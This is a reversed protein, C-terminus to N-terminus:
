WFAIRAELGVITESGRTEVTMGFRDNFDYHLGYGTRHKSGIEQTLTVQLKDNLNKGMRISYDDEDDRKEGSVYTSFVSGAHGRVINFTDLFIVRKMVAEIESLVTM